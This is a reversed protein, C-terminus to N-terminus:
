LYPQIVQDKHSWLRFRDCSCSIHHTKTASVKTSEDHLGKDVLGVASAELLAQIATELM